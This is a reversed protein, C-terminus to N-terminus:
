AGMRALGLYFAGSRLVAVLNLAQRERLARDGISGNLSRLRRHREPSTGLRFRDPWNTALM